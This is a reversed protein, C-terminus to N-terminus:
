LAAREKQRWPPTDLWDLIKADHGRTQILRFVLYQGNRHCKDCAVRMVSLKGILDGFIIASDRPM